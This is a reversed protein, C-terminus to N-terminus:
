PVVRYRLSAMSWNTNPPRQPGAGPAAPAAPVLNLDRAILEDAIRGIYEVADEPEGLARPMPPVDVSTVPKDALVAILTGQGVPPDIMYTFGAFQDPILFPVGARLQNGGSGPSSLSQKNPFIQTVKGDPTADFLVLYGSRSSDVRIQASQGIRLTAGPAVGIRLNAENSHAISTQVAVPVAAPAVADAATFVDSGTQQKIWGSFASVRSYVGPRGARACGLGWSVVGIQVYHGQEDKTVLPGGSDGQCADKGGEAYGACITRRDIGRGRDGQYAQRCAVHDILPLDVQMMSETLYLNEQGDPIPQRTDSDMWVKKERDFYRSKLLGWGTVTSLRGETEIPSPLRALKSPKSHAPTALQVLAVDNEHSEADYGEHVIMRQVKLSRGRDAPVTGGPLSRAIMNTQEVVLVDDPGLRGGAFCHGATLVWHSAIVSGGCFFTFVGDSARRQFFAIQWPWANNEAPNGGVVRMSEEYDDDNAAPVASQARLPLPLVLIILGVLTAIQKVSM